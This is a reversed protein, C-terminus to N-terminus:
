VDVAQRGGARAAGATSPTAARVLLLLPAAAVAAAAVPLAIQHGFCDPVRCNVDWLDCLCPTPHAAIFQRLLPAAPNRPRLLGQNATRHQATGLGETPQVFGACLWCPTASCALGM